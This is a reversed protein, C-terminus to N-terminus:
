QHNGLDATRLTMTLHGDEIGCWYGCRLAGNAEDRIKNLALLRTLEANPAASPKAALAVIIRLAHELHQVRTPPHRDM